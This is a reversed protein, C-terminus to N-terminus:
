ILRLPRSGDFTLEIIEKVIGYYEITESDEGQGITLVGSNITSVNPRKRTMNTQESDIDMLM